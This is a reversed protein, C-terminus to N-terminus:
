PATRALRFGLFDFRVTPAYSARAAARLKRAPYLWSGGRFVRFTGVAAGAGTPDSAAYPGYWDATWEEVNGLMDFLGFDNPALLGVAAAHGLANCDFWGLEALATGASFPAVGTVTACGTTANLNGAYTAAVTGARAAFEWEAETPLRYGDCALGISTAGTCNEHSGDKWGEEPNTCGVLLYCPTLGEAGSLANTFAVAAYWDLQEVPGVNNWYQSPNIGGTQARWARQTLETRGLFFANVPTVEHVAEDANRGREDAPSGMLFRERPIYNMGAPSCRDNAVGAPTTACSGSDCQADADCFTGLARSSACLNAALRYGPECVSVECSEWRGLGPNWSDTGATAAAPLSVCPRVDAECREAEVHYTAECSAAVCDGWAGGTFTEVGSGHVIPCSRRSEVCSGEELHYATSCQCATTCGNGEDTDGDDCVESLQVRGDGCRSTEGQVLQCSPDCVTCGRVGYACAERVQNGDDCTEGRELTGNGCLAATPCNSGEDRCKVQGVSDSDCVVTGCLGCSDGPQQLLTACGGCLNQAAAGLDGVCTAVSDGTGCAVLGSSCTGCSSGPPADLVSCVGCANPATEGVCRSRQRLADDLDCEIHGDGCAGCVSGLTGGSIPGAGGCENTSGERSCAIEDRGTCVLHGAGQACLEGPTGDLVACGGCANIPVGTCTVTGEVSCRWLAGCGNCPTGPEALLAECGGCANPREEEQAVLQGADCVLVGAFCGQQYRAGPTPSVNAIGAPLRLDGTSGCLNRGLVVCATVERGACVRLGEEGGELPCREGPLQALPECGGCGNLEADGRCVAQGAACTWTGGGCSGCATGPEGRLEGCGGCANPLTASACALQDPGVCFLLGDECLGCADGPSAAEGRYALPRTGGCGRITSGESSGADTPRLRTDFTLGECGGIFGALLLLLMVRFPIDNLQMEARKDAALPM